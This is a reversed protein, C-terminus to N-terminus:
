WNSGPARVSALGFSESLTVFPVIRELAHLLSGDYPLPERPYDEWKLGLAFLRRLAPPRFWFMTGLPFDFFEPLERSLGMREALLEANVRNGDWGVLHPDEAFILGLKPDSAFAAVAIDLMPNEGGILNDWLFTRYADGIGANSWASKKGHVHGWLDYEGSAADEGFGTLLPGIDRGLNPMVRVTVAGPHEAFVGRLAEAKEETDTSVFLDCTTRNATLREALDPALDPYHFHAHLAVRLEKHPVTPRNKPSYVPHSWQGQPRGHRLWHATPNQGGPGCDEGHAAAYAQPHFGPIARRFYANRHQNPSTGVVTSQMLVVQEVSASRPLSAQPSLVLEPEVAGSSRLTELDAQSLAAAAGRGWADIQTAYNEGNFARRGVREVARCIAKHLEPNNALRCIEGAAAEADLHPVVLSRTEPDSALVEATGSAGAFCVTPLGLTVADIGVNPQPDLRSSMLFVDAARYAPEFDAVPELFVVVDKLDSKNIQERLYVSYNADEEPKYGDGVWIFKFRVNSALRRAAAAVSLFIDVGKRIHIFGAGLVIFTDKEDASRMVAGIDLDEKIAESRPAPLLQRGQALIHIGRRQELAPFSEFSSDAM